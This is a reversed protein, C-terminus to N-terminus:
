YIQFVRTNTKSVMSMIPESFYKTYIGYAVAPVPKPRGANGGRGDRIHWLIWCPCGLSEALAIYPARNEASAHTADVVVSSGAALLRKAEGYVKQKTKLIDQELHVTNPNKECLQRATTSKGSGPNGMLLILTRETLRRNLTSTGFVDAPRRFPIGCAAAFKSDSDSWRYPPFPDEAGVADGCYFSETVGSTPFVFDNLATWLGTAPKRYPDNKTRSSATAVLCAPKWGNVEELAGLVSELKAQVVDRSHSWDSQNTIIAVFWGDDAFTQLKSPIDSGLFIWDEATKAYLQGSKSTILTGDLDFLALKSLSSPHVQTSNFIFVSM